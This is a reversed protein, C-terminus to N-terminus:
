LDDINIVITTIYYSESNADNINTIIKQCSTGKTQILSSQLLSRSRTVRTFHHISAIFYILSGVIEMNKLIHPQPIIRLNFVYTNFM